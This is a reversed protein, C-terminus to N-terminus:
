NPVLKKVKGVSVDHMINECQNSLINKQDCDELFSFFLWQTFQTFKLSMWFWTRVYM